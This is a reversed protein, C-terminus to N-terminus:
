SNSGALSKGAPLGSLEQKVAAVIRASSKGDGYPNVAAAMARYKEADTLLETLQQVIVGRDTGVLRATGAEIGETRETVERM